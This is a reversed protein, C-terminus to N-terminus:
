KDLIATVVLRKTDMFGTCTYITLRSDATDASIRTDMPAVVATYVVTYGIEEGKGNVAIVKDGPMVKKLNGLLNPWNHGYFVSNGPSGPLPSDVAYSVGNKTTEWTGNVLRAPYVPLTLSLAPIVIKEPQASGEQIHTEAQAFVLTQPSTREWVLFCGFFISVLGLGIFVTDFYRRM